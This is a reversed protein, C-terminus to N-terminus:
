VIEYKRRQYRMKIFAELKALVSLSVVGHGDVHLGNFKEALYKGMLEKNCFNQTYFVTPATNDIDWELDIRGPIGLEVLRTWGQIHTDDPFLELLNIDEPPVGHYNFLPACQNQKYYEIEDETLPKYCLEMIRSIRKKLPAKATSILLPRIPKHLFNTADIIDFGEMLLIDRVNRGQDCKDMGSTCLVVHVQDRFHFANNVIDRIIHCYVDPVIDVDPAGFNIDLDLFQYDLARFINLVRQDPQGYFAIIRKNDIDQVYTSIENYYKEPDGTYTHIDIFM